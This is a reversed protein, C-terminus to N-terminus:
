AWAPLNYELVWSNDATICLRVEPLLKHIVAWLTPTNACVTIVGAQTWCVIKDNYVQARAM